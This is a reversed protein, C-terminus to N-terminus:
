NECDRGKSSCFRYEVMSLQPKSTRLSFWDKFVAAAESRGVSAAMRRCLRRM